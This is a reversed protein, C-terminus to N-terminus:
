IIREPGIVKESKHKKAVVSVSTWGATSGCLLLSAVQGKLTLAECDTPRSRLVIDFFLLYTNLSGLIGRHIYLAPPQYLGDGKPKHM